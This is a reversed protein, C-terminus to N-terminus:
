FGFVESRAEQHNDVTTIKLKKYQVTASLDEYQNAFEQFQVDIYGLYVIQDIDESNFFIIEQSVLGMPLTAAGFEFYGQQGNIETVPMQSIIVFEQDSGTVKVVSGVPLPTLQKSM